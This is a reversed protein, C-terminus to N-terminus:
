HARMRTPFLTTNDHLDRAGPVPVAPRVVINNTVGRVGAVGRVERGAIHRQYEWDVLGELTLWGNDVVLTIASAPTLLNWRLAAVATRAIEMSTPVNASVGHLTLENVVAKVGEVRAVLNSAVRKDSLTLVSGRLVVVGAVASVQIDGADLGRTWELADEVDRQLDRDAAPSKERRTRLLERPRV